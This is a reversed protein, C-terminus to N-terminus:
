VYMIHFHNYCCKVTFNRCDDDFRAQPSWFLAEHNSFPDPSFKAVDYMLLQTYEKAVQCRNFLCFLLVIFYGFGLMYCAVNADNNDFYDDCVTGWVGNYNVELRGARPDGTGGGLQVSEIEACQNDHSSIQAYHASDLTWFLSICRMAYLGFCDFTTLFRECNQVMKEDYNKPPPCQLITALCNWVIPKSRWDWFKHDDEGYM